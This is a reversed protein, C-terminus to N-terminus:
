EIEVKNREISVSGFCIILYSGPDCSVVSCFLSLALLVLRFREFTIFSLRIVIVRGVACIVNSTIIFYVIRGNAILTFSCM